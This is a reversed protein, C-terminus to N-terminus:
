EPVPIDFANLTLCVMCYLGVLYILETTGEEGFQDVSKKYIWEPLVGGELLSSTFDYALAEEEGLTTPRQGAVLTTIIEDELGHDKGMLIHAYLEYSAHFKAGVTLISVERVSKPLGPSLSLSKVLEWMPGGFKPYKLWPIWPGILSGDDDIAKFGKFHAEIGKKMDQYLDKQEPSLATPKIRNLRM